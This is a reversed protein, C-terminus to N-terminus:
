YNRASFVHLNHMLENFFAPWLIIITIEQCSCFFFFRLTKANTSSYNLIPMCFYLYFKKTKSTSNRMILGKVGNIIYVLRSKEILLYDYTLQFWLSIISLCSYCIRTEVHSFRNIEDAGWSHFGFRKTVVSKRGIWPILIEM